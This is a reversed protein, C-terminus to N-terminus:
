PWSWRRERSHTQVPRRLIVMLQNGNSSRLFINHPEWGDEAALNLLETIDEPRAGRLAGGLVEVTYEWEASV